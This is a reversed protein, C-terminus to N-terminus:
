KGMPGDTEVSGTGPEPRVEDAVARLLGNLFRPADTGSYQTALEVLESLVVGTPVQPSYALEWAAIRALTRDVVTLRELRWGRVHRTIVSDIEPRNAAVGEVIAAAYEGAKLDRRALSESAPDGTLEIEYLVSLADERAERRGSLGPIDTV